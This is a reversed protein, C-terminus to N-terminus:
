LLRDVDRDNDDTFFGWVLFVAVVCLGALVLDKGGYGISARLEAGVYDGVLLGFSFVMTNLGFMQGMVSDSEEENSGDGSGDRNNRGRRLEGVRMKAKVMGPTSVLALCLGQLSLGLCFLGLRVSEVLRVMSGTPIVMGVLAPVFCGYGWISVRKPGFRDVAWGALPACVLPPIALSLYVFGVSSPSLDFGQTSFKESLAQVPSELELALTSDYCGIIIYQTMSLFLCVLIQPDSLYTIIPPVQFPTSIKPQQQRSSGGDLLFEPPLLPSAETSLPGEDITSRLPPCTARPSTEKEVM